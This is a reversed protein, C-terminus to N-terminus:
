RVLVKLKNLFNEQDTKTRKKIRKSKIGNERSIKDIYSNCLIVDINNKTYVAGYVNIVEAGKMLCLSALLNDNTIVLDDDRVNNVIHIDVNQYSHDVSILTGYECSINHNINAYFIIEKKHRECVKEILGINPCSDADVIVRM